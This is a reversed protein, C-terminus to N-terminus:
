RVNDSWIKFYRIKVNQDSMIDSCRVLVDQSKEGLTTHQM